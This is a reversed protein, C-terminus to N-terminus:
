RKGKKFRLPDFLESGDVDTKDNVIYDTIIKSGIFCLGLGNKGFISNMYINKDLKGICPLHDKTRFVQDSWHYEITYEKLFPFYDYVFSRMTDFLMSDPYDIFLRGSYIRMRIGNDLIQMTMPPFNLVDKYMLNKCCAGNITEKVMSQNKLNSLGFQSNTCLVINKCSIIYGASTHIYIKGFRKEINVVDINNFINKHDVECVNMLGHLLQYGNCMASTPLYLGGNFKTSPVLHGIEEHDMLWCNDNPLSTPKKDSKIYLQVEGANGFSCVIDLKDVLDKVIQTNSRAVQYLVSFNKKKIDFFQPFNLNGNNRGSCRFGVDHKDLLIANVGYETLSFLTSIGAMGGGIIVTDAQKPLESRLKLRFHSTDFWYNLETVM